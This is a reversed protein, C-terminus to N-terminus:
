LRGDVCLQMRRHLAATGVNASVPEPGRVERPTTPQRLTVGVQCVLVSPVSLGLSEGSAACGVLTPIPSGWARPGICTRSGSLSFMWLAAPLTPGPLSRPRARHGRSGHGAM